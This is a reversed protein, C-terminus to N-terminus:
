SLFGLGVGRERWRAADEEEVRDLVRRRRRASLSGRRPHPQPAPPSPPSHAPTPAARPSARRAAGGRRASWTPRGATACARGTGRGRAGRRRRCRRPNLYASRQQEACGHIMPSQVEDDTYQPNKATPAKRRLGDPSHHMEETRPATSARRPNKARRRNIPFSWVNRISAVAVPIDNDSSLHGNICKLM